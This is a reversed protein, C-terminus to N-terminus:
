CARAGRWARSLSGECCSIRMRVRGPLAVTLSDKEGHITTIKDCEKSSTFWSFKQNWEKEFGSDKEGHKARLLAFM